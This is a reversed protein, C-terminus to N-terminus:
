ELRQGRAGCRDARIIAFYVAYLIEELIFKQM